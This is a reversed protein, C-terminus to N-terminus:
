IMLKGIHTVSLLPNKFERRCKISVIVIQWILIWNMASMYNSVIIMIHYHYYYSKQISLFYYNGVFIFSFSCYRYLISGLFQLKLLVSRMECRQVYHLCNTRHYLSPIFIWFYAKREFNDCVSRYQVLFMNTKQDFDRDLGDFWKLLM